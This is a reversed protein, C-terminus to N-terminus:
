GGTFAAPFFALVVTKGRYGSLTVPSGSTSPLTFDPASEGVKLPTKPPAQAPASSGMAFLLLALSAKRM